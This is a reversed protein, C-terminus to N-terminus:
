GRGPPRRGRRQIRRRRLGLPPPPAGLPGIGVPLTSGRPTPPARRTQLAQGHVKLTQGCATSHRMSLFETCRHCVLPVQASAVCSPCTRPVAPSPVCRDVDEPSVGSACYVLFRPECAVSFVCPFFDKSAAESVAEPAAEPVAEPVGQPCVDHGACWSVWPVGSSPWPVGFGEPWPVGGM